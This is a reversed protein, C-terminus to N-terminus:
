ASIVIERKLRNNYVLESMCQITTEMITAYKRIRPVSLVHGSYDELLELATVFVARVIRSALMYIPPGIYIDGVV